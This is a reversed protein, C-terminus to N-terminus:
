SEPQASLVAEATAADTILVNVWRGRLAGLIASAKQSGGAVGVRVPISRLEDPTLGVVQNAVEGEVPVGDGDFYRLSIDGVAGRRRLAEKAGPKLLIPNVSAPDDLSGIGVFAIECAKAENLARAVQENQLLMKRLAPNDVFGPSPLSSVRCRFLGSLRRVIDSAQFVEDPGGTGGLLQVLLLNEHLQPLTQDVMASLTKGWSFGIVKRTSAVNSLYRSAALAIDRTLDAASLGPDVDVIVAEELAFRQELEQRLSSSDDTPYAIQIKVVGEARARNLLRSVMPRSLGVMRGIDHQSLEREYYLHAVRVM